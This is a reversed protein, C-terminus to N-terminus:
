RMLSNILSLMLVKLVVDLVVDVDVVVDLVYSPHACGGGSVGWERTGVVTRIGMRIGIPPWSFGQPPRLPPM